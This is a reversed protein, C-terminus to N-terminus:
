PTSDSPAPYSETKIRKMRSIDALFLRCSLYVGIGVIPLLMIGLGVYGLPSHWGFLKASCFALLCFYALVIAAVLMLAVFEYAHPIYTHGIVFAIGIVYTLACLTKLIQLQRQVLRVQAPRTEFTNPHVQSFVRGCEPCRVDTTMSLDYGCTKCYCGKALLYADINDAM